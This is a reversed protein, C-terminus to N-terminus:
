PVDILGLFGSSLISSDEDQTQSGDTDVLFVIGDKLRSLRSTSADM